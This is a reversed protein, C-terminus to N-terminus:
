YHDQTRSFSGDSVMCAACRPSCPVPRLGYCGWCRRSEGAGGAVNDGNVRVTSVRDLGNFGIARECACSVLSCGGVARAAGCVPSKCGGIQQLSKWFNRHQAQTGAPLGLCRRGQCLARGGHWQGQACCESRSIRSGHLSLPGAAVAGSSPPVAALRRCCRRRWVAGRAAAAGCSSRGSLWGTAAGSTLPASASARSSSASAAPLPSM